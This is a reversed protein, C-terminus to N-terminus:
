GARAHLRSGRGCLQHRLVVEEHAKMTSDVAPMTAGIRADKAGSLLMIPKNIKKMSDANPVAGNMYPFAGYFAVGGSYGSSVAASRM